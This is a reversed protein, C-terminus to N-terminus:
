YEPQTIDASKETLEMALDMIKYLSIMRIEGKANIAAAYGDLYRMKENGIHMFVAVSHKALFPALSSIFDKDSAENGDYGNKSQPFDGSECESFIAFLGNKQAVEIDQWESAWKQFKKANKVKFYNSRGHGYYNAM